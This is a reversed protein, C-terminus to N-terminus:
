ADRLLANLARARQALGAALPDWEAAPILRPVPDVVFPDAGFPVGRRELRRAVARRLADLDVGQLAALLEAYGPRPSGDRDRDEDYAAGAFRSRDRTTRKARMAM